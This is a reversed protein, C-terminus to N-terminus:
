NQKRGACALLGGLGALCLALTGPEPVVNMIEFAQYTNNAADTGYGAIDGNNDIASAYNLTFGAPLIGAYETNLDTVTGNQWVAAHWTSGQTGIYGVVQGADNIAQDHGGGTSTTGVIPDYLMFNGLPTYAQTSMNYLFYATDDNPCSVLSGIAAGVVVTGSSNIALAQSSQVGPYATALGHSQLDTATQSVLTGGSITYSWVDAFHTPPSGATLWGVAQGQTNLATITAPGPNSGPPNLTYSVGGIRVFGQYASTNTAQYTGAIDGASDIGASLTGAASNVGDYLVNFSTATTGGSYLWGQHGGLAVKYVTAQGSDNMAGAYFQSGNNFLSNIKTMTGTAGGPYYDIDYYSGSTQMGQMVVAGSACVGTPWAKANADTASIDVCVANAWAAGASVALSTVLLLSLCRHFM